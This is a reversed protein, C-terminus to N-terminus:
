WLENQKEKSQWKAKPAAEFPRVDRWEPMLVKRGDLLDGVALIQLTPYQMNYLQHFGASAVETRMPKTAGLMTMLAGIQAKERDVVGRLRARAFSEYAEGERLFTRFAQMVQSVKV